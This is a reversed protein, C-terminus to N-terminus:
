PLRQECASCTQEGSDYPEGCAPCAFAVEGRRDMHAHIVERADQYTFAPVLIRVPSLDGFDVTFSFHDKQSFVRADIGEAQLNDRILQAEVDDGTTYIQAWGEIIPVAAHRECLHAVGRVRDCEECLAQGCIVCRNRAERDGHVACTAPETLRGCVPCADARVLIEEGCNGCIRSPDERGDLPRGCEPCSSAEVPVRAGCEPCETM